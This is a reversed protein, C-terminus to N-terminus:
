LSNLIYPDFYKPIKRGEAVEDIADLCFRIRSSLLGRLKQFSLNQNLSKWSQIHNKIGWGPYPRGYLDQSRGPHRNPSIHIGHVPRFWHKDQIPLTKRSIIEYLLREDNLRCINLDDFQPLPYHADMRTFHLGSLRRSSPRVSNSYPLGTEKMYALHQAVLDSDLIIIDVDGIYVYEAKSIPCNIFRVSNPVIRQGNPLRWSVNRLKLRGAGFTEDIISLTPRHLATFAKADEVGIEVTSDKIHALISFAYLPVFDEYSANACTFFVISM